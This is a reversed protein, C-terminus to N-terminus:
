SDHIGWSKYYPKLQGYEPDEIPNRNDDFATLGFAIQLGEDSTLEHDTDFFADRTSVM